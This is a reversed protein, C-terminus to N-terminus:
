RKKDLELIGIKSIKFMGEDEVIDDPHVVFCIESINSLAKSRMKKLSLRLENEGYEIPLEFVELIENNDSYKFEVFIRKLSNTFSTLVFGFEADDNFDLYHALDLKDVYRLVASVFNPRIVDEKEYPNMNFNVVIANDKISYNVIDEKHKYFISDDFYTGIKAMEVLNQLRLFIQDIEYKYSHIAKNVSGIDIGKESSLYNLFTNIDDKDGIDGTQINAIPTGSLAQGKQVPYISFPFIYDEGKKKYKNYFYSYAVGLEIM